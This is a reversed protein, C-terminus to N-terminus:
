RRRLCEMQNITGSSPSVIQMMDASVVADDTKVYNVNQYYFYIGLVILAAVVVFGIINTIILRSNM